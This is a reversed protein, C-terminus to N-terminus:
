RASYQRATEAMKRRVYEMTDAVAVPMGEDIIRQLKAETSAVHEGVSRILDSTFTFAVAIGAARNKGPPVYSSQFGSGGPRSMHTSAGTHSGLVAGPSVRGRGGEYWGKRMTDIWVGFWNRMFGVSSSRRGFHRKALKRAEEQTYSVMRGQTREKSRYRRTRGAASTKMTDSKYIRAVRPATGYKRRALWAVLKPPMQDRLATISARAAVPALRRCQIALNMLFHDQADAFTNRSAAAYETVAQQWQRSDLTVAM